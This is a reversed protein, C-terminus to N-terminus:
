SMSRQIDYAARMAYATDVGENLLPNYVRLWKASAEASNMVIQADVGSHFVGLTDDQAILRYNTNAELNADAFIRSETQIGRSLIASNASANMAALYAMLFTCSKRAYSQSVIVEFARVNQFPESHILSIRVGDLAINTSLTGVLNDNLAGVGGIPLRLEVVGTVTQVIGFALKNFLMLMDLSGNYLQKSGVSLNLTVGAINAITSIAADTLKILLGNVVSKSANISVSANIAVAANSLLEIM